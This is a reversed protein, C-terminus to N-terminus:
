MRIITKTNMIGKELNKISIFYSGSTQQSLDIELSEKNVIKKKYIVKGNTTFVEVDGTFSKNFQILAHSEIPNPVIDFYNQNLELEVNSTLVSSLDVNVLYTMQSRRDSNDLYEYSGRIPLIYNHESIKLPSHIDLLEFSGDTPMDISGIKRPVDDIAFDVKLIDFGTQDELEYNAFFVLVNDEYFLPRVEDYLLGNDGFDRINYLLQGDMSFGAIWTYTDLNTSTQNPDNSTQTLFITGSLTDLLYSLSERKIFLETIDVSQRLSVDNFAHLTWFDLSAREPSFQVNPQSKAYNALVLTSDNAQQYNTNSTLQVLETNIGTEFDIRNYNSTDITLNQDLDYLYVVNKAMTDEIIGRRILHIYNGNKDKMFDSNNSSFINHTKNPDVNDNLGTEVSLVSLDKADITWKTPTGFFAFRPLIYVSPVPITDFSKYGYIEITDGKFEPGTQPNFLHFNTASTYYNFHLENILEGTEIELQYLDFGDTDIGANISQNFFYAYAGNSSLERFRSKSYKSINGYEFQHIFNEDAILHSWNVEIGSLNLTPPTTENQGILQITLIIIFGISILTKM